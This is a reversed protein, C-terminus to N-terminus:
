APHLASPPPSPCPLEESFSPTASRAGLRPLLAGPAMARATLSREDTRVPAGDAPSTRTLLGREAAIWLAETRCRAGLKSFLTRLHAKVTGESIGLSRAMEKNSRGRLVLALVEGERSTLAPQGLTDALQLSATACLHRHGAAVLRVARVIEERGCSTMVYGRIGAELAGRVDRAQGDMAVILIPTHTSSAEPRSAAQRLARDHDLILLDPVAQPGQLSRAQAGDHSSARLEFEPWAGLIQRLGAEVVPLAHSLAVVTPAATKAASWHFPSEMLIELVNRDSSYPLRFGTSLADDGGSM